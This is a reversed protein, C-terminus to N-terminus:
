KLCFQALDDDNDDFVDCPLAMKSSFFSTVIGNYYPATSAYKVMLDGDIRAWAANTTASLAQPPPLHGLHDIQQNISKVDVNGYNNNHVQTINEGNQLINFWDTPYPYDEFWNTFGIQAKTSQNGVITFYNAAGLERIQANWGIKQLQGQLYEGTAKAVAVDGVTYVTVKMGKTGSQQVLQKARALDYPYPTPTIKRYQPYSPPLFNWTPVGLGGALNVLAKRDIAYNVAQRAQLNDFPPTRQNMFFYFTSPTVFFNIQKACHAKYYSIRDTPLLNGAWMDKGSAVLQAAQAQDNTETVVIKDPNGDPVAPIEGRKWNPNRLMVIRRSPAYSSFYYPGNAAPPPNETDKPPTSSPVLSTFPISLVYLFDSQPQKLEIKIAGTGNDTTIGGISKCKTPNRECADVGVINSFFGIGPSNLKFDRIITNTFDSAKVPEGNSYELGKRLTFTYNKGGDTVTGTTQALGPLITTCNLTATGKACSVHAKVVLGLYSDQFLQWSELRYSLGPDLYDTATDVAKLLAFTKGATAPTVTATTTTTGSGGSGCASLVLALGSVVITAVPLLRVRDGFSSGQM